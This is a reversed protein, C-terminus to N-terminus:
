GETLQAFSERFKTALEAEQEADLLCSKWHALEPQGRVAALVERGFQLPVNSQKALLRTHPLHAYFYCDADDLVSQIPLDTNLEQFTINLKSAQAKITAHLRVSLSPEVPICQVHTHYGGKTQIAREFVFLDMGYEKKAHQRLKGIISDMEEWVEGGHLAGQSSHQVPVLLIHGPHVPGKPMAAYCSDYVGTILHKECSPSALCFWCDKRADAPFHKRQFQHGSDDVIVQDNRGEKKPAAWHLYLGVKPDLFDSQDKYHQEEIRGGDTSGTLTAVAMSAAAHSAFDLFGYLMGETHRLQVQLAPEDKAQVRESEPADGALAQELTREMFRRLKEASPDPANCNVLKFYLANSDRAEAETLRHKAKKNKNESSSTGWKLTLSTGEITMSGNTDELCRQADEHSAFELFCFSTTQAAAPRRISQLKYKEFAKELLDTGSQLRGSVDQHLGYLFLTKCDPDVVARERPRKQHMGGGGRNREEDLIRRAAADSLGGPGHKTRRLVPGNRTKQYNADTFPCPLANTTAKNSGTMSRNKLPAVGVAHLWKTAKDANSRVPCLALFRGTHTIPVTSTSAGVHWYAPSQQFEGNQKHLSVHYQARAALAVDAVDFSINRKNNNNPNSSVLTTEVGQPWESSMLIDCGLYSVHNLTQKLASQDDTRYLPPVSVVVLGHTLEWIGGCTQNSYENSNRLVYLHDALPLCRSAADEQEQDSEFTDRHQAIYSATANTDQLYLDLPLQSSQHILALLTQSHSVSTFVVDFPGAKSPQLKTLKQILVPVAEVSDLSGCFLVKAKNNTTSSMKHPRITKHKTETKSNPNPHLLSSTHLLDRGFSNRPLVFNKCASDCCTGTTRYYRQFGVVNYALAETILIGIGKM